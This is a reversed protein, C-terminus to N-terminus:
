NFHTKNTLIVIKKSLLLMRDFLFHVDNYFTRFIYSFSNYSSFIQRIHRDYFCRDLDLTIRSM